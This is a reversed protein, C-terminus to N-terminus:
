ATQMEKKKHYQPKFETDWMQKTPGTGSSGRCWSTTQMKMLPTSRTLIYRTVISFAQSTSYFFLVCKSRDPLICAKRQTWRSWPFGLSFESLVIIGGNQIDTAMKDDPRV